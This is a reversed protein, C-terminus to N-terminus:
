TPPREIPAPWFEEVLRQSPLIGTSNRQRVEARGGSVPSRAAIEPNYARDRLESQGSLSQCNETQAADGDTMQLAEKIQGSLRGRRTEVAQLGTGGRLFSKSLRMYPSDDDWHYRPRGATRTLQAHIQQLQVNSNASEARTRDATQRVRGTEAEIRDVQLGAEVALADVAAQERALAVQTFHQWALPASMLLLCAAATQTKTLNVLHLVITNVVGGGGAASLAAKSCESALAPPAARVASALAGPVGATAAAFGRKRFFEGLRELARSVRKRAADEEVGLGAAVERLSREELFRLVLALRDTERLNLLAEDLLPLLAAFPSADENQFHIIESATQERQRRRLESRICAKTELVTARHLWGALTQIGAMRPAKRALSIFVSQTVDQAMAANGTHRLATAFVLDVHRQVLAQFATESGQAVYATVLEYDPLTATM